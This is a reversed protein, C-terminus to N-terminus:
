QQVPSYQTAGCVCVCVCVCICVCGCMCVGVCERVCVCLCLNPRRQVFSRVTACRVVCLMWLVCINMGGNWGAMGCVWAECCSSIFFVFNQTLELLRYCVHCKHQCLAHTHTNYLATNLPSHLTNCILWINQTLKQYICYLNQIRAFHWTHTNTHIYTHIYTHMYTPLYTYIHSHIHMYSRKKLKFAGAIIDIKNVSDERFM